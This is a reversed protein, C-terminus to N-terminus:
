VNFLEEDQLNRLEGKPAPTNFFGSCQRPRTYKFLYLLSMVSGKSNYAVVM